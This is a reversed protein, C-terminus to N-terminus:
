TAVELSFSGSAAAGTAALRGLTLAVYVPDAGTVNTGATVALGAAGNPTCGINMRVMRSAGDTLLFAHGGTTNVYTSSGVLNVGANNAYAFVGFSTDTTLGNGPSWLATRGYWGVATPDTGNAWTLGVVMKATAAITVDSLWAMGTLVESWTMVRPQLWTHHMESVVTPAGSDSLDTVTIVGGAATIGGHTYIGPSVAVADAPDLTVFPSAPAASGGGAAELGAPFTPATPYALSM